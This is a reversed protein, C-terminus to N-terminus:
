KVDGNKENKKTPIWQILEINNSKLFMNVKSYDDYKNRFVIRKIGFLALMKSCNYCPSYSIYATAGELNFNGDQSAKKIANMEAHIENLLSWKSHGDKNTIYWENDINKYWDGNSDKKFCDNCNAKGPLTGNIGISLINHESNTLICVVQKAACKSHKEYLSVTEM